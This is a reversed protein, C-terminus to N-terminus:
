SNDGDFGLSALREILAVIESDVIGLGKGGDNKHIDKFTGLLIQAIMAVHIPCGLFDSHEFCQLSDFLDMAQKTNFYNMMPRVIDSVIYDFTQNEQDLNTIDVNAILEYRFGANAAEIAEKIKRAALSTPQTRSGTAIEDLLKNRKRLNGTSAGHVPLCLAATYWGKNLLYLQDSQRFCQKIKSYAQFPGFGLITGTSSQQDAQLITETASFYDKLSDPPTASQLNGMRSQWGLGFFRVGKRDQPTSWFDAMTAQDFLMGYDEDFLIEEPEDEDDDPTNDEHMSDINCALAFSLTEANTLDVNRESQFGSHTGM